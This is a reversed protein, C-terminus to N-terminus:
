RQAAAPSRVRAPPGSSRTTLCACTCAGGPRGVAQRRAWSRPHDGGPLRLVIVGRGGAGLLM